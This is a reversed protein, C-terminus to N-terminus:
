YNRVVSLFLRSMRFISLFPNIPRYIHVAAADTCIVPAHRCHSLLPAALWQSPLGIPRYASNHVHQDSTSSWVNFQRLLNTITIPRNSSNQISCKNNYKVTSKENCYEYEHLRDKSNISWMTALQIRNKLIYFITITTDRIFVLHVLFSSWKLINIVGTYSSPFANLM